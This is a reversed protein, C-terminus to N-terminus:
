ANRATIRLGLIDDALHHNVRPMAAVVRSCDSRLALFLVDRQLHRQLDALEDLLATGVHLNIVGAGGVNEDGQVAAALECVVFVGVKEDGDM